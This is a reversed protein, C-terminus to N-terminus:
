VKIDKLSIFSFLFISWMKMLLYLYLLESTLYKDRNEIAFLCMLFTKIKFPFRIENGFQFVKKQLLLNIFAQKNKTTEKIGFDVIVTNTYFIM